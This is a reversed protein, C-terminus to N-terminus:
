SRELIELIRPSIQLDLHVLPILSVQSLNAVPTLSVPALKGSPDVVGAAFNGAFNGCTDVVSVALKELLKALAVPILSVLPM